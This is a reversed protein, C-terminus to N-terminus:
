TKKKKGGEAKKGGKMSGGAGGAGGGAGGGNAVGGGPHSVTSGTGYIIINSGPAVAGLSLAKM